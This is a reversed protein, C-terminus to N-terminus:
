WRETLIFDTGDAAPASVPTAAPECGLLHLDRSAQIRETQREVPSVFAPRRKTQITAAPPSAAWLKIM